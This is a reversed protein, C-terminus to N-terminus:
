MVRATALAEACPVFHSTARLHAGHTCLDQQRPPAHHKVTPSLIVLPGCNPGSFYMVRAREFTELAECRLVFDFTAWLHPRRSCLGYKRTPGHHKLASSLIM